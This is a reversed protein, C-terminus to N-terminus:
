HGATTLGSGPRRDLSDFNGRRKESFRRRARGGRLPNPHPAAVGWCECTERYLLWGRSGEGARRAGEGTPRHPEHTCSGYRAEGAVDCRRSPSGAKAPRPVPGEGARRAGEGTPRHPEHTCSGYRAEGAVDCRRSPSGLSIFFRAQPLAPNRDNKNREGRRASRKREGGQSPPPPPPPSALGPFRGGKKRRFL